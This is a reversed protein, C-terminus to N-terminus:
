RRVVTAISSVDGAVARVIYLGPAWASANIEVRQRGTGRALEDAWVRRGLADFAALCILFPAFWRM